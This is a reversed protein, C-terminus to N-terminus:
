NLKVYEFDFPQENVGRAPPSIWNAIKGPEQVGIM